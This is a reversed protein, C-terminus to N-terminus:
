IQKSSNKSHASFPDYFIWRRLMTNILNKEYIKRSHGRIPAKM